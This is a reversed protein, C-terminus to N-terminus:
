VAASISNYDSSLHLFSIHGPSTVVVQIYSLFTETTDCCIVFLTSAANNPLSHPLLFLLVLFRRKELGAIQDM